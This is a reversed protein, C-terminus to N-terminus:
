LTKTPLGSLLLGSPLGLRLHSSLMLISRLSVPISSAFQIQSAWSRTWHRFKTFVTIFMRTGYLFCSIKQCASHCDAKWIINQVISHTLSHTLLYTLLYTLLGLFTNNGTSLCADTNIWHLEVRNTFTRSESIVFICIRNRQKRNKASKFSIFV